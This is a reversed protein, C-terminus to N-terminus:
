RNFNPSSMEEEYSVNRDNLDEDSKVYFTSNKRHIDQNEIEKNFDSPSLNIKAELL